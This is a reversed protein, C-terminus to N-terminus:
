PRAAADILSEAIEEAWSRIEDWDRFDGYPARLAGVIAREPFSLMAKDLKGAFVRHDRAETVKMVEDVDVPDETPKPPDGLPGSSFLWVPKGPFREAFRETLEIAPKMWHGAYVASGVVIADFTHVEEVHGPEKVTVEFGRTMLTSGIADAIGATAGHKSAASVLVKM